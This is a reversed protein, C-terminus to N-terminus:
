PEGLKCRSLFPHCFDFGTSQSTFITSQPMLKRPALRRSIDQRSGKNGTDTIGWEAVQLWVIFSDIQSVVHGTPYISARIGENALKREQRGTCEM